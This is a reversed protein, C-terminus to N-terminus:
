KAPVIKFEQRVVDATKIAPETARGWQWAALTVTLPLKANPPIPTFVLTNGQVIAPGAVVFFEVPLGSDSKASLAFSKTGAPVDAIPDFTIKQVQGNNKLASIQVGMPQVIARVNDTGPQRAALYCAAVGYTRDLAIRFRGDGLPAVPGCLWELAPNGPTTALPEGASVFTDPIRDLLKTGVKFTVGDAEWKVSKLNAIGNFDFPLVKDDAGIFGPLQTQAQWNINAIKQAAEAAAKTLYWPQGPKAETNPTIPQAPYNPVNLGAVFGANLDLTRLKGSDDLRANTIDHIYIALYDTVTESCDFHGSHGDIVYTLPWNPNKTRQTVISEYAKSVDNWKSRIDSKDQSWEQASGYVVLAPVQRNKPPLHNNKLWVGAICRDPAQEVLADVMLLHGSEGIPLWPVTAVEPYGSTAALGDLLKQLFACVTAYEKPMDKRFNVFSPACWVIGLQNKECAARITPHGVLRHEPVNTCLVLLGRLKKCNEPIWLYATSKTNSGDRWDSTASHMFQFVQNVPSAVYAPKDDALLLSSALLPLLLAASAFKM